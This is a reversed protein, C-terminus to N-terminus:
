RDAGSTVLLGNFTEPGTTQASAPAPLMAVLLGTISTALLARLTRSPM